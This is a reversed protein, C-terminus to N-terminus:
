FFNYLKLLLYKFYLTATKAFVMVPVLGINLFVTHTHTHTHTHTLTGREIMKKKMCKRTTSAYRTLCCSFILIGLYLSSLQSLLSSFVDDLQPLLLPTKFKFVSFVSKTQPEFYLMKLSYKLNYLVSLFLTKLM